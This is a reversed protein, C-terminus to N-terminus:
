SIQLYSTRGNRSPRCINNNTPIGPAKIIMMPIWNSRFLSFRITASRRSFAGLDSVSLTRLGTPIKQMIMPNKITTMPTAPQSPCKSSKIRSVENRHGKNQFRKYLILVYFYALGRLMKTSPAPKKLHRFMQWSIMKSRCPM